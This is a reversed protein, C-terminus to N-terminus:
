QDIMDDLATTTSHNKSYAHQNATILYNKEMYEWIKRCVIGELITSLSGLLGIPRSNAPTIPEKSDKLIPCLNAHKWVNPFTGKELSWIFIYKLPAAIQTAYYLLFNDM